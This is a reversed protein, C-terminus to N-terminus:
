QVRSTSNNAKVGMRARRPWASFKEAERELAHKRDRKDARQRNPRAKGEETSLGLTSPQNATAGGLLVGYHRYVHM